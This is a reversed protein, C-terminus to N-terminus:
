GRFVAIQAFGQGTGGTVPVDGCRSWAHAEVTGAQTTTVGFYVEVVQGRWQLMLAAAAAQPLCLADFPLHRSARAVSRAVNRAVEADSGGPRPRQEPHRLGALRMVRAFPLTKLLVCVLTLVTAAEITRFWEAAPLRFLRSARWMLM